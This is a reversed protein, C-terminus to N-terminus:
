RARRSSRTTYVNRSDMLTGLSPIGTRQGSAKRLQLPLPAKLISLTSDSSSPSSAPDPSGAVPMNEVEVPSEAETLKMDMDEDMGDDEEPPPHEAPFTESSSIGQERWARLVDERSETLKWKDVYDWTRKRPTTGTPRDERTGQETLAETAAHLTGLHTSAVNRYAGTANALKSGQSFMTLQHVPLFLHFDVESVALGAMTEVNASTSVFGKQMHRYESV